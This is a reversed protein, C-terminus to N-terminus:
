SGSEHVARESEPLSIETLLVGVTSLVTFIFIRWLGNLAMVGIGMDGGYGFMVPLATYLVGVAVGCVAAGAVRKWMVMGGAGLTVVTGCFIPVMLALWWIEMLGPLKGVYRLYAFDAMGLIGAGAISCLVIHWYRPPLLARLESRKKIRRRITLPRNYFLSFVGHELLAGREGFVPVIHVADTAWHAAMFRALAPYRYTM